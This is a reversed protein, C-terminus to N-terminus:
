RGVMALLTRFRFDQVRIICYLTDGALPQQLRPFVIRIALRMLAARM